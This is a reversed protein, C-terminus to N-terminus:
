SLVCMVRRKGDILVDKKKQEKLDKIEDLLILGLDVKGEVKNKLEERLEDKLEKVILGKGGLANFKFVVGRCSISNCVLVKGEVRKDLHNLTVDEEFYIVKGEGRGFGFSGKKEDKKEKKEEEETELNEIVLEGNKERLSIIKGDVPSVVKNSKFGLFGSHKAIVDGKSVKSGLAVQM